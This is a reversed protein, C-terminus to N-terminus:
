HQRMAAFAGGGKRPAKAKGNRRTAAVSLLALIPAVGAAVEAAIVGEEDILYSIPTAFMGYLRSIEWQRQLVVPFTLRHEAVKARNAAAEGPEGDGGAGRAHPALLAGPPPLAPRLPWVASGFLGAAPTARPVAIVTPPHRVPGAARVGARRLRGAAWVRPQPDTPSCHQSAKATTGVGGPAAFDPRKPPCAPLRALVRLGGHAVPARHWVRDLELTDRRRRRHSTM